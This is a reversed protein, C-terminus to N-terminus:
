CGVRYTNYLRSSLTCWRTHKPLKRHTQSATHPIQTNLYLHTHNHSSLPSEPEHPLLKPWRVWWIRWSDIGRRGKRREKDCTQMNHMRLIKPLIQESAKDTIDSWACCFECPNKKHPRESGWHRWHVEEPINSHHGTFHLLLILGTFQIKM